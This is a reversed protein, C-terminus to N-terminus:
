IPGTTAEQDSSRPDITYDLPGESLPRQDVVNVQRPRSANRVVQNYCKRAKKQNGRVQGVGNPNPFRMLLHYISPIYQLNEKIGESITQRTNCQLGITSRDGPFKGDCLIRQPIRGVTLPLTIVGMSVVFDETFGYIPNPSPRLDNNRLGMRQFAQYYLIDVSSRNDMLIRHVNNNATMAKIILADCHPHHVLHAGSEKFNIHEGGQIIEYAM